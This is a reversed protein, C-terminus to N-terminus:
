QNKYKKFLWIECPIGFYALAAGFGLAIHPHYDEIKITDLNVLVYILFSLSFFLSIAAGMSFYAKYKSDFEKLNEKDLLDKRLLMGPMILLFVIIIM